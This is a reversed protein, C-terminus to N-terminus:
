TAEKQRRTRRAQRNPQSDNFQQVELEAQAFVSAVDEPSYCARPESSLEGVVKGSEDLEIVHAVAQVKVLKRERRAM